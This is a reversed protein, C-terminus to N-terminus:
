QGTRSVRQDAPMNLIDAMNLGLVKLKDEYPIRAWAVWGLQPAVDRMVCDTGFLLQDASVEECFFEIFPYLISTYTIEAYVNRCATTSKVVDEAMDWSSGSHAILFKARPYKNGLEIAVDSKMAHCLVPKENENAWEMAPAWKPDNFPVGQQPPYPKFGVVKDTFFIRELEAQLQEPYHPNNCGYALLRGPHAAVADLSIDNSEPDGETIGSWSSFVCIDIGVRDMTKVLNDGDNYALPVRVGMCGPHAIHGHADLIFHDDLPKGARLSAVIPDDDPHEPPTTLEPLPRGSAGEVNQLLRLMNGGAIKPRAEEPIDEFMTMMRAAGPSRHPLDTGFLLRDSGYRRIFEEYARHEQYAATEIHINPAQFLLPYLTRGSGWGTGTLVIPLRPHARSIGLLRENDIEARGVFLPIRHQELESLLSGIIYESTGFSHTKPFIRASRVGLSLMEAVIEHAPAMEDCNDPLLVWQPIFRLDDGIERMLRRNGYDASYESAVAHHVVAGMIDYYDFDRRHDELKYITSRHRNARIGIMCNCDLFPIASM